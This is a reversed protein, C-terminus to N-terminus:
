QVREITREFKYQELLDTNKYSLNLEWEQKSKLGEYNRDVLLANSAQWATAPILYLNPLRENEFLAVAVLLNMRWVRKDKRIFVYNLRRASKVQM